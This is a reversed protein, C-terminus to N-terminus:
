RNALNTLAVAIYAEAGLPMAREDILFAADHLPRSLEPSGDSVGLFAHCGPVRELYRSFDESVSVPPHTMLAQPEIARIAAQALRTKEAENVVAPLDPSLEVVAEARNAAATQRAIREIGEAFQARVEESFYRCSGSLTVESALINYREGGRITGISLVAPEFPSIERSVISQLQDVIRAAALIADGGRHPMGGHGGTARVTITFAQQGAMRPGPDISIRGSPLATLVHMSFASTCGDTIGFEDLDLAGMQSEEAPQFVLRVRGGFQDRNRQLVRGAALLMSLHADHGCAHMRGPYESAFSVGSQEEVPLADIDARLLVCGEGAGTGEIDCVVGTGTVGWRRPELGFERLIEEIRTATRQEEGSLEPFRHMERRWGILLNTDQATLRPIEPVKIEHM